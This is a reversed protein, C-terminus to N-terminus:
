SSVSRVYEPGPSILLWGLTNTPSFRPTQSRSRGQPRHFPLTYYPTLGISSSRGPWACSAAEGGIGLFPSSIDGWSTPRFSNQILKRSPPHPFSARTRVLGSAPLAWITRWLEGGYRVKITRYRVTRYPLAKHGHFLSRSLSWKHYDGSHILLVRRASEGVGGILLPRDIHPNGADVPVRESKLFCRHSRATVPRPHGHLFLLHRRVRRARGMAM